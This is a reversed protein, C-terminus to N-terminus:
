NRAVSTAGLFKVFSTKINRDRVPLQIGTVIKKRTVSYDNGQVYRLHRDLTDHLERADKARWTVFSLVSGDTHVNVVKTVKGKYGLISTVHAFDLSGMLFKESRVDIFAIRKDTVCILTSRKDVWGKKCILIKENPELFFAIKRVEHIGLFRSRSQLNVLQAQVDNFAVM